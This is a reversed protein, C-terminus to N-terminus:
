TQRRYMAYLKGDHSAAAPADLPRAGGVVHAASWATNDCNAAYLAGDTGRMLIWMLNGHTALAPAHGTRWSPHADVNRWGSGYVWRSTYVKTDLGNAIRWLHPGLATMAVGNGLTWDERDQYAESWRTGDHYKTWETRNPGVLSLFVGNTEPHAALAPEYASHHDAFQAIASWGGAETYTRWWLKGGAGTVAYYLRGHAATVAPTLVSGDTGVREPTRWTAGELRTWMVANDAPRIFLAYLKGKYSALAPPTRSQWGASVPASWVDGTRVAYELPAPGPLDIRGYLVHGGDRAVIEGIFPGVQYEAGALRQLAARDYTFVHGAVWDDGSAQILAYCLDAIMGAMASYHESAQWDGLPLLALKEATTRLTTTMQALMKRVTAESGQDKEWCEIHAILSNGVPGDFVTTNADLNHTEGEDVDGYERTVSTREAGKDASTCAAWFIEDSGSWENSERYCWFKTLDLRVQIPPASAVAPPAGSATVVVAGYGHAAAARDFEEDTRSGPVREGEAADLDVIRVNAQAAIEPALLPLDRALDEDGYGEDVPRTALVDPFLRARGASEETYVRGFDDLEGEDLVAGLAGVLRAELDTLELGAAGRAAGHLAVGYLLRAGKSSAVRGEPLASKGQLRERLRQLREDRTLVNRAM